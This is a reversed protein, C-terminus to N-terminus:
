HGIFSIEEGARIQDLLHKFKRIALSLENGFIYMTGKDFMVFRRIWLLFSSKVVQVRKNIPSLNCGLPFGLAIYELWCFSNGMLYLGVFASFQRKLAIWIQDPKGYNKRNGIKEITNGSFECPSDVGRSAWKIFGRYWSASSLLWVSGFNM